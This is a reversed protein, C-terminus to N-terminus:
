IRRRNRKSWRFRKFLYSCQEKLRVLLSDTPLPELEYRTPPPYSSAMMLRIQRNIDEMNDLVKEKRAALKDWHALAKGAEIEGILADLDGEIQLDEPKPSEKSM